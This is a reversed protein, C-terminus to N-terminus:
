DAVAIRAAHTIDTILERRTRESMVQDSLRLIYSPHWSVMVPGGHLGTEVKGRRSTLPADNNTLAFAASAGLAMVMRPRIFALELGLWWRCHMIENRDPNQHLRRKGRPAFKFHKVANTLWTQEVEVGAAVMTERLLHGAPGVFPRGELDERDGPQEGVVMLKADEAGEGWVTQTSAECLGCRRCHGSAARAEIMTQPFEPAQPMAARYRTSIAVAGAAPSTEAAVRMREVRAEADRLMDPILRTEPLNKWYKKPMESRMANLKVRAPNFINAFYTGWLTETADESLDPRTSGPHYSLRGAEFRATLRPTAIVWDMDAFRKAFFFSGPEVINHEPEFWAAFRRRLGTEPLERFRVFAHMKHIDRGVSKAMLHLQRGLPDAQSLPDGANCDLRWLAQYLLRFREPNSHWIVSQALKLFGRTVSIRHEGPANPLPMEEFLGGAGSWDIDNPEIGHSIAIRAMERWADFTGRDPLKVSYIM